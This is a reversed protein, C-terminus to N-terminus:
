GASTRSRAAPIRAPRSLTSGAHARELTAFQMKQEIAAPRNDSKLFLVLRPRTRECERAFLICAPEGLLASELDGFDRRNRCIVAATDGRQDGCQLPPRNTVDKQVEVILTSFAPLNIEFPFTKTRDLLALEVGPMAM